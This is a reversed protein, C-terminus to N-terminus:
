DLTTQLLEVPAKPHDGNMRYMHSSKGSKHRLKLASQTFLVNKSEHVRALATGDERINKFRQIIPECDGIECGLWRRNKLEAAMFTTGSGGFPDFVLDGEVSGIDLIRDLMKLPLENPGRRKYKRHRVPSLDSWVDSLNVGNPNMKNKYGGYDKIEGGCHRCTEMPIRSPGFAKPKGKSFYLLSYHAPYLRKPIPLSFKMEVAIWNRFDIICALWTGIVLNWKPLNYVFLSGHPKLIRVAESLWAKSWDIYATDNLNDDIGPGYDKKLNFPPDAFVCDVSQAQLSKMFAVCDGKFLRGLGTELVLQPKQSSAM